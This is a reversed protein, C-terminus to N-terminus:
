ATKKRELYVAMSGMIIMLIGMVIIAYLKQIGELFVAIGGFSACLLYILTLAKRQTLGIQLFRHHLHKLDGKMPSKGSVIRRLIVWIADLLPFGMVLIATAVKGGSFIALTALVFGLFMSGTDGMLIKAPYFDFFWFAFAGAFLIISMTAVPIQSGIDYHIEPRISLLFLSLAAIVAVGSSLGNLGDLFNMTNVITVVWVITFLAGLVSIQYVHDLTIAMKWQDLVIPDGLPNSISQIGIGAFVLMLAAAVQVFLRIWPSLGRLDDIFSIVVLMAAAVLFLILSTDMKVFLLTSLIFSLFIAIGGYYPIPKRKLGYKHPRDMLGWKPFLWLAALVLILTIVFSFLAPLIFIQIDM